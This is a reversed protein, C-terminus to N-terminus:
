KSYWYIPVLSKTSPLTIKEIGASVGAYGVAIGQIFTIIPESLIGTINGAEVRDNRRLDYLRNTKLQPDYATLDNHTDFNFVANGSFYDVVYIRGKGEGVYCPDTEPNGGEAPTPTFTTYYVAGFFIVPSSLSKEGSNQDLRIFWGNLDKLNSMLTHLTDLSTGPEQLLDQTVDVLQDASETVPQDPNRDKVAYLRDVLDINKPHERDGTAFYVMEYNSVTPHGNVIKNETELSVDPPYFIKRSTSSDIGPNSKFLIKGSWAGTNSGKIDFRWM